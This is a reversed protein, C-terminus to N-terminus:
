PPWVRGALAALGLGLAAGAVVDSAHHARVYVRSGAVLAAVAFWLPALRPESRTLIGAAFFASSAHGSPFSSTAPTRLAYPHAGDHEPRGRRFLRKVGQNVVLSEVGLLVSLRLAEGGRRHDLAARGLGIAHWVLSFEGAQSAEYALRDALPHGRLHDLAAEVMQDFRELAPTM